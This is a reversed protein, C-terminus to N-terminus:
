TIWMDGYNECLEYGYDNEVSACLQAVKNWDRIAEEAYIRALLGKAFGKTFVFKDDTVDPAHEIAFTLDDVLQSYVVDLPQQPPFYEYYVSDINESTIAPPITNVVPVSGWLRSMQFLAWAKWCRAEASWRDAEEQTMEPDNALIRDVNCIIENANSMQTLYYGWDRTVNVNEGDQKNAEIQMIEATNTGCYANDARCETYILFDQYGYEQIGKTWDGYIKNRLGLMEERTDYQSETSANVEVNGENYSTEPYLDLDCSVLGVLSLMM